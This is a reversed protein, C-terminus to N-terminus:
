LQIIIVEDAIDAMLSTRGWASLRIEAVEPREAISTKIVAIPRFRVTQKRTRVRSVLRVNPVATFPRLCGLACTGCRVSGKDFCEIPTKAIVGGSVLSQLDTITLRRLRPLLSGLLIM